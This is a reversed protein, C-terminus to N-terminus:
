LFRTLHCNIINIIRDFCPRFKSFTMSWNVMQTSNIYIFFKFSFHLQLQNEIPLHLFLCFQQSTILSASTTILNWPPCLAPCVRTISPIVYLSLSKGDPITLFFLIDIIPLPTTISGQAKISSIFSILNFNINVM